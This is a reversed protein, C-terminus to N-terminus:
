PILLIQSSGYPALPNLCPFCPAPDLLFHAFDPLTQTRLITRRQSLCHTHPNFEHVRLYATETQIKARVSVSHSDNAGRRHTEAEGHTHFLTKSACSCSPLTLIVPPSVHPTGPPTPLRCKSLPKHQNALASYCCWLSPPNFM